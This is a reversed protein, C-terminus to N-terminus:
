SSLVIPGKFITPTNNNCWMMMPEAPYEMCSAIFVKQICTKPTNSNPTKSTLNKCTLHWEQCRSFLTSAGQFCQNCTDHLYLDNVCIVCVCVVCWQNSDCKPRIMQARAPVAAAGDAAAAPAEVATSKDVTDDNAAPESAAVPETAVPVQDDGAPEQGSSEPQQDTPPETATPTTADCPTTASDTNQTAAAPKAATSDHSFWDSGARNRQAYQKAETAMM